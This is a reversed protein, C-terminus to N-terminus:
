SQNEKTLGMQLADLNRRMLSIYTEGNDFDQQTVTHCSQFVMPVANTEEAIVNAVAPNSVEFYYAASLRDEKVLKILNSITAVSPETDSSCGSFAAYCHLGYTEAFYQLPFKDAFLLTRNETTQLVDRFDSDLETLEAAYEVANKQYIETHEPDAECIAACVEMLLEKAVVPSTWIHEDYEIETEEAHAHHDEETDHEHEHDSESGEPSQEELLSVYDMMCRVVREKHPHSDSELVETVWHEMHGGNYLFVSANQIALIDSPTPEFSHSEMGPSLLLQLSFTDTDKLVARAFDYYCFLTTVLQPQESQKKQISQTCGSCLFSCFLLCLLVSLRAHWVKQM